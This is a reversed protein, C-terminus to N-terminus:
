EAKSLGEHLKHIIDGIGYCGLSYAFFPSCNSLYANIIEKTSVKTADAVMKISEHTLYFYYVAILLFLVAAVYFIISTKTIKKKKM